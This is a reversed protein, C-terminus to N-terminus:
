KKVEKEVLKTVRDCKFCKRNHVSILEDCKSCQYKENQNEIFADIGITRISELNDRVSMGYNKRYRADMRDIQKCPYQECEFCFAANGTHRDNNVGTCKEFLYTCTRNEQRCGRCQSKRFNNVYARYRSCISCNM